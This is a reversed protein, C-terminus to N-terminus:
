DGKEDKIKLNGAVAALAMQWYAYIEYRSLEETEMVPLGAGLYDCGLWYDDYDSGLLRIHNDEPNKYLETGPFPTCMTCHTFDVLGEDLFDRLLKITAHASDHTEGPLGFVWYTYLYIGSHKVIRCAEKSQGISIRKHSHDLIDQEASEIGLCVMICGAKKMLRTIDADIFDTRSQCIWAIDLKRAIIENCFELAYKYSSLFNLDGIMFLRWGYTVTYYELEDVVKKVKRFRLENFVKSPVCFSCNNSCGRSTIVRIMVNDTVDKQLLGYMPYPITDLDSICERRPTLVIHNESNRFAIGAIRSLQSPKMGYRCLMDALEGMTEEGEGISVIDISEASNLIQEYAFTAHVGGIIVICEKNFKKIASAILVAWKYNVTMCSIAAIQLFEKPILRLNAEIDAMEIVKNQKARVDSDILACDLYKLQYGKQSLCGAIYLLGINPEVAHYGDIGNAINNEDLIMTMQKNLKDWYATQIADVGIESKFIPPQILLINKDM